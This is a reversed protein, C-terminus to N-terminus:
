PLYVALLVMIMSLGLQYDFVTKLPYKLNNLAQYFIRMALPILVFTLVHTVILGKQLLLQGLRNKKSTQLQIIEQLQKSSIWKKQLLIQGLRM